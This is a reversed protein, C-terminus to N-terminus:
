VEDTLLRENDVYYLDQALLLKGDRNPVFLQSKFPDVKGALFQLIDTCQKLETENLQQKTEAFRNLIAIYDAPGFSEKVGFARLMNRHKTVIRPSISHFNRASSEVDNKLAVDSARVFISGTWVWPFESLATKVNIEWRKGIEQSLREYIKTVSRGIDFDSENSLKKLRTVVDM